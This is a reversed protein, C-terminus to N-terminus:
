LTGYINGNRLGSSQQERKAPLESHLFFSLRIRLFCETLGSTEHFYENADVVWCPDHAGCGLEEHVATALGHPQGLFEPLSTFILLSPSLTIM